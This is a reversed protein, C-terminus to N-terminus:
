IREDRIIGLLTVSVVGLVATVVVFVNLNAWDNERSIGLATVLPVTVWAGIQDGFDICSILTGYKIGTSDGNAAGRCDERTVTTAQDNQQRWADRILPAVASEDEDRVDMDGEVDWHITETQEQQAGVTATALVVDPLFQWEGAFTTVAGVLVVVLYFAWRHSTDHAEAIIALNGLTLLSAVTTTGAMVLLLSWGHSYRAFLKGYSWSSLTTMGMGFVSMAQLLIPTDQLQSYIFSEMFYSSDPIAHRAILFLGVRHIRQWKVPNKWVSVFLTAVLVLILFTWAAESSVGEIPGQM